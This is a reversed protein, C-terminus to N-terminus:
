TRRRTRMRLLIMALTAILIGLAIPTAYDTFGQLIFASALPTTTTYTTTIISSDVWSSIETTAYTINAIEPDPKTSGHDMLVIITTPGTFILYFTGNEPATWHLTYATFNTESLVLDGVINCQNPSSQFTYNRLLYLNAPESSTMAMNLRTGTTVTLPLSFQACKGNPAVFGIGRPTLDLPTQDTTFGTTSIYSTKASVLDYTTTKETSTILSQTSAPLFGTHPLFAILAALLLLISPM